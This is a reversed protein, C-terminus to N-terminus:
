DSVTLRDRWSEDAAVVTLLRTARTVAVYLTRLGAPSEAVIEAPDVLVVADFELGKADVAGIASVRAPLGAVWRAVEAAQGMPALVGVTGEVQEVLSAAAERVADPRADPAASRYDPLDGTTRVPEAPRADPAITALLGAAVRAIEAPNRYNTTLEFTIRRRAGLAADMAAAATDADQWASQAADAVVTWTAHRGRRGLMRWQMPSLDQAEDVVIHGFEAPGAAAEDWEDPQGPGRWAALRDAFTTLEDYSASAVQRGTLVDIGDVVYPDDEGPRPAPRPRPPRGLLADLEDLLAIDQYSLRDAHASWDAALVAVQEASLAGRAASRLRDQDALPRLVDLPRQVPWWAAFFDAFADADLLHDRFNEFESARPRPDGLELLVQGYRAWAADLLAALAKRRATNPRVGGRLVDRRVARLEPATLEFWTRQYSLRLRSPAGVPSDAAARRLMRVMQTSGKILAVEPADHRVASVGSLLDGLSRLTAGGEGLAPLVREIYATFRRNPGIVLVGRSGFRQRYRFLLWAVRHLAVATKGTGPGGSVVITADVPARIVEDQERQITAVVDRMHGDRTRALAALFAGDGVVVMDEPAADPALLDDEVDLVQEGRCHLVRRRVVDGPQEPTARYFAEAVPARWDIVLPDMAATRVGLRGIHRVVGDRLDLRGFVLENHAHDLARSRLEAQFVKVDRDVLAAATGVQAEAYGERLMQQAEARLEDLRQYVRDVHRQEIAVQEARQAPKPQAGPRPSAPRPV